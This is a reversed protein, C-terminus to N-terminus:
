NFEDPLIPLPHFAIGEENLEKAEEATAEGYISRHEVEGYHIKRAQEPFRPGVYDANKVIHERLEKLKKRLEREPPSMVALPAPPPAPPPAAAPAPMRPEEAAETRGLRPAMIAKEVKTSDCVPCAILSRKVQKDYAASNAFWSEFTHGKECNLAYRIM